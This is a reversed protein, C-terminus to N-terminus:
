LRALVWESILRIAVPHAYTWSHRGGILQASGLAWDIHALTHVGIPLPEIALEILLGSLFDSWGFCRMSIAQTVLILSALVVAGVFVLPAVLFIAFLFIAALASQLSGEFLLRALIQFTADLMNGTGFAIALPVFSVGGVTVIIILFSTVLQFVGFQFVGFSSRKPRFLPRVLYELMKSVKNGLWAFFQATSLAAAAEDGSCRVFLYDGRPINVTQDRRVIEVIKRGSFRWRVFILGAVSMGCLFLSIIAMVIAKRYESLFSMTIVFAAVSLVYL